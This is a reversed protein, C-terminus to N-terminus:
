ARPTRTPPITAQTPDACDGPCLQAPTRPTWHGRVTMTGPRAGPLTAIRDGFSSEGQGSFDYVPGSFDWWDLGWSPRGQERNARLHERWEDIQERRLACAARRHDTDAAMEAVNVARLDAPVDGTMRPLRWVFPMPAFTADWSGDDLLNLRHVCWAGDALVDGESVTEGRQLRTRLDRVAVQAQPEYWANYQAVTVRRSGAPPGDNLPVRAQDADEGVYVPAADATDPLPVPAVHEALWARSHEESCFDPSPSDGLPGGCHQCGLAADLTALFDTM